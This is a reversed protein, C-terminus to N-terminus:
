TAARASPPDPPRGDLHTVLARVLAHVAVYSARDAPFRLRRALVREEADLTTAWRALMDDSPSGVDIWWVLVQVTVAHM